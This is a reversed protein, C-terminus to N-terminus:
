SGCTLEKPSMASKDQLVQENVVFACSYEQKSGWKVTLVINDQLGTLWVRGVPGVIGRQEGSDDYVNAGFPLYDGNVGRLSVLRVRGLDTDFKALVIAGRTPVVSQINDRLSADMDNDTATLLIRNERYPTAYPVLARGQANTKVGPYNNVTLGEAGPADVIVATEGIDQGLLPGRSDIVVAGSVDLTTSRNNRGYAHSVNVTGIPSQYGLAGYGHNGNNDDTGSTVGTQVAYTLSYDDNLPGSLSVDNSTGNNNSHNLAYSATQRAGLPVSFTLMFTRDTQNWPNKNLGYNLSYGVRGISSNFGVQAYTADRPANRYAVGFYNLSLSSLPGLRQSISLQYEHQRNYSDYDYRYRGNHSRDRVVDDLSRFGSSSYRYGALTFDTGSGPFSKAYQIHAAYGSNRDGRQDESRSGIIDFSVAGLYELNWGIGVALSQFNHQAVMGGGYATLGYPLGYAATAQALWPKSADYNHRYEGLAFNYKWIGERMLMPLASFPQIFRTTRGGIEEVEVELDGAGPTSYLDNIVFPGAPVFTSYIVNGRQRVTVKAYGSAIGRIVPAYGRQSDPLMGEDSRLQVGRFRLGTFIEGSTFSDGARLVGRWPNITREVYRDGWDWQAQGGSDYYNGNARFRWPGINLGSRLSAFTTNNSDSGSSYSYHTRNLSVRYATWFTTTGDNWMEPPIYGRAHSDLAAQPISINLVNKGQDYRTFADPLAKLAGVCDSEDLSQFALFAETKVGLSKLTSATLCPQADLKGDVAVFEIDRMGVAQQNLRVFVSHLGPLVRNSHSFVSLDIKPQGNISHLFNSDFQAISEEQGTSEQQAGATESTFGMSSALLLATRVLCRSSSSTRLGMM